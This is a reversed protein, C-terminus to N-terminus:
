MFGDGDLRKIVIPIRNTEFNVEYALEEGTLKPHDEEFTITFKKLIRTFILKTREMHFDSTIVTVNTIGMENLISKSFHANDVTSLAEKELIIRSSPIGHFEALEKMVEAETRVGEGRQVLGGTVLLFDKDLDFKQKFLSSAMEMRGSLIHSPKGGLELKRGLVIM